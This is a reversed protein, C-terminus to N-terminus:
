TPVDAERAQTTPHCCGLDSTARRLLVMDLSTAAWSSNAVNLYSFLWSVKLIVDFHTGNCQLDKWWEWSLYSKISLYIFLYGLSTHTKSKSHGTCSEKMRNDEESRKKKKKLGYAPQQLYWEVGLNGLNGTAKSNQRSLQLVYVRDGPTTWSPFTNFHNTKGQVAVQLFNQAQLSTIWLAM